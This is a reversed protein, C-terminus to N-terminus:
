RDLYKESMRSPPILYRDDMGVEMLNIRAQLYDVQAKLQNIQATKSLWIGAVLRGMREIEMHDENITSAQGTSTWKISFLSDRNPFYNCRTWENSQAYHEHYNQIEETSPRYSTGGRMHMLVLCVLRWRSPILEGDIWRRPVYRNIENLLKLGLASLSPNQSDPLQYHNEDLGLVHIFDKVVDGDKLSDSQFLRVILEGPGMSDQWRLLTAKHDCIDFSQGKIPAPLKIEVASKASETLRSIALSLPDRLYVLVHITSFLPTLIERLRDIESSLLLRSHLTECSIIWKREPRSKVEQYFEDLWTTITRKRKEKDHHLDLNRIFDDVFDHNNAMLQLKFHLTNGLDSPVAYGRLALAKRNIRLFTQISTSGTKETGIHLILSRQPLDQHEM